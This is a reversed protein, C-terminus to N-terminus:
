KSEGNLRLSPYTKQSKMVKTAKAKFVFITFIEFILIFIAYEEFFLSYLSDRSLLDILCLM